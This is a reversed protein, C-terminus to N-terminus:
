ISSFLLKDFRFLCVSVLLTDEAQDSFLSARLRLQSSASLCKVLVDVEAIDVVLKSKAANQSERTEPVFFSFGQPMILLQDLLACPEEVHLVLQWGLAEAFHGPNPQISFDFLHPLIAHKRIVCLEIHRWTVRVQLYDSLSHLTLSFLRRGFLRM